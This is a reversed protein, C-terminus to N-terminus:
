KPGVRAATDIMYKSLYYGLHITKLNYYKGKKHTYRDHLNGSLIIIRDLDIIKRYLLISLTIRHTQSKM